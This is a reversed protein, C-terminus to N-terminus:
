KGRFINYRLERLVRARERLLKTENDIVQLQADTATEYHLLAPAAANIMKTRGYTLVTGGIWGGAYVILFLVTLYKGIKPALGNKDVLLLWLVGLLFLGAFSHYRTAQSMMLGFWSRSVATVAATIASYGLLCYAFGTVAIPLTRSRYVAWAGAALLGLGALFPLLLFLNYGFIIAGKPPLVISQGLYAVFFAALRFPHLLGFMLGGHQPPSQYGRLYFALVALLFLALGGALQYRRQRLALLASVLVGSIGNAFSFIAVFLAAAGAALAPLKGDERSFLAFATVVMLLSLTLQLQWGNVLNISNAATMQSVIALLFLGRAAKDSSVRRFQRYILWNLALYLALNLGTEALMNWHTLHALGLYILRPFFIRHENHLAWLQGFTFGKFYPVIAWQDLYPINPTLALVFVFLLLANLWFFLRSM